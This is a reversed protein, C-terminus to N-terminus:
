VGPPDSDPTYVYDVGDMKNNSQKATPQKGIDNIYDIGKGLVFQANKNVTTRFASNNAYTGAFLGVVLPFIIKDM